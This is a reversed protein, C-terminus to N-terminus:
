EGICGCRRLYGPCTQVLRVDVSSDRAERQDDIIDLPDEPYLIVTLGSGVGIRLSQHCSQIQGVEVQSLTNLM